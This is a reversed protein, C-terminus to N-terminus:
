SGGDKIIIPLYIYLHQPETAMTFADSLTAEQCDGGNYLTLTYVGAAMSGPVVVDLTTSSTHTVSVLWTDGLKVHPTDVFGTGAIQVPTDEGVFGIAPTVSLVEPAPGPPLPATIEVDDIFWGTDGMSDDCGIRWRIQVSQGAFSELDVEVQKWTLLDGTWAQRGGLPNGSGSSITGDYGNATIYPGLDTWTAGGDASIELV